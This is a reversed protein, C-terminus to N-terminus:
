FLTIQSLSGFFIALSVAMGIAWSIVNSFLWQGTSLHQFRAQVIGTVLGLIVGMLVGTFVGYFVASELQDSIVVPQPVVILGWMIFIICWGIATSAVTIGFWRVRAGRSPLALMLSQLIGICSGPILSVGLIFLLGSTLDGGKGLLEGLFFTPFGTVIIVFTTAVWFGLRPTDQSSEM